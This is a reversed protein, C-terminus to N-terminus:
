NNKAARELAERAERGVVRRVAGRVVKDGGAKALPALMAGVPGGFMFGAGVQAALNDGVKDMATAARVGPLAAKVSEMQEYMRMVKAGRQAGEHTHAMAWYIAREDENLDKWAIGDVKRGAADNLVSQVNVQMKKLLKIKHDLATQKNRIGAGRAEEYEASALSREKTLEKDLKGVVAEYADAVGARHAAAHKAAIYQRAEPNVVGKADLWQTIEPAEKIASILRNIRIHPSTELFENLGHKTGHIYSSVAEYLEGPKVDEGADIRNIIANTPEHEARMVQEFQGYGSLEPREDGPFPLHPNEYEETFKRFQQLAEPASKGLAGTDDPKLGKLIYSEGEVGVLRRAIKQNYEDVWQSELASLANVRDDQKNASGVVKEAESVKESESVPAEDVYKEANAVDEAATVKGLRGKLYQTAAPTFRELVPAALKMGGHLIPPTIAVVSMDGLADEPHGGIIDQAGAVAAQGGGQTALRLATSFGEGEPATLFSAADRIGHQIKVPTSQSYDNINEMMEPTAGLSSELRGPKAVQRYVDPYAKFDEPVAYGKSIARKAIDEQTADDPVNNLLFGNPLRMSYPM